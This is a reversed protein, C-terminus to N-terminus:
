ERKASRPARLAFNPARSSRLTLPLASWSFSRIRQAAHSGPSAAALLDLSSESDLAGAVNALLAM